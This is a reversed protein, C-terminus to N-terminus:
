SESAPASAPAWQWDLVLKRALSAVEKWDSASALGPVREDVQSSASASAAASAAKSSPSPLAAAGPQVQATDGESPTADAASVVLSPVESDTGTHVSDSDDTQSGDQPAYADQPRLGISLSGLHPNGDVFRLVEQPLTDLVYNVLAVVPNAVKGPELVTGSRRLSIPASADATADLVAFDLVGISAYHEFVPKSEMDMVNAEAVDTLVLVFPYGSPTGCTPVADSFEKIMEMLLFGLKGHGSGVEIIYVPESPDAAHPGRASFLDRLFAILVKAYARAVYANSSLMHPVIAMSWAKPGVHEYFRRQIDWLRSSGFRTAKEIQVNESPEDKPFLDPNLSNTECDFINGM